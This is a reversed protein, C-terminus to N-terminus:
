IKEKSDYLLGLVRQQQLNNKAVVAMFNEQRLQYKVASLSERVHAANGSLSESTALNEQAVSLYELTQKLSNVRSELNNRQRSIRSIATNLQRLSNSIRISDVTNAADSQGSDSVVADAEEGLSLFVGRMGELFSETKQLKKDEVQLRTIEEQVYSIARNADPIRPTANGPNIGEKATCDTTEPIENGKIGGQELSRSAKEPSSKKERWTQLAPKSNYIRVM